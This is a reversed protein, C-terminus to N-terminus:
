WYNALRDNLWIMKAHFSRVFGAKVISLLAAVGLLAWGMSLYYTGELRGIDLDHVVKEFLVATGIMAMAGVTSFLQFVQRDCCWGLAGFGVLILSLLLYEWESVGVFLKPYLTLAAVVLLPILGIAIRRIAQAARDQFAIGILFIFLIAAHLNYYIEWVIVPGALSRYTSAAYGLVLAALMFGASRWILSLTFLSACVIVVSMSNFYALSNLDVTKLNLHCILFALGSAIWGAGPVRRTWAYSYFLILGLCTSWAPASVWETLMALYRLQTENGNLGPFAVALLVLPALVFCFASRQSRQQLSIELGVWATALLLPSLFYIGFGSELGLSLEFSVTLGYARVIMAGIMIAFIAWPYCPWHWPIAQDMGRPGLRAAPLLLMVTLGAAASFSMVYWAMLPEQDSISLHGLWVPYAHLLILQLYYPGRFRWPFRLRLGRIAAESVSMSFLCGFTLFRLATARDDLCIRDFSSSISVFLLVAILLITRADDWVKGFRVILVGTVVLLLTYAALIKLLLSGDAIGASETFSVHVGYLLTCVSILYFPNHVYLWKLCSPVSSIPAATM